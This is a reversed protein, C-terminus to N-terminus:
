NYGIQFSDTVERQEKCPSEYFVLKFMQQPEDQREENGIGIFEDDFLFSIFLLFLFSAAYCVYDM